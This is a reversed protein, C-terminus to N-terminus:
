LGAAHVRAIREREPEVRDDGNFSRLWNGSLVPRRGLDLNSARNRRPRIHPGQSLVDNSGFEDKRGALGQARHVQARNGGGAVRGGDNAPLRADRHDRGSAFQNWQARRRTRALNQFEVGNDEGGLDLAPSAKAISELDNPILKLRDAPRNALRGFIM